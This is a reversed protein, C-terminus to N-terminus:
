DILLFDWEPFCLFICFTLQAEMIMFVRHANYDTINLTVVVANYDTINLTVFVRHPQQVGEADQEIFIIADGHRDEIRSRKAM